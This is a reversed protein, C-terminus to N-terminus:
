LKRFELWLKRNFQRRAQDSRALKSPLTPIPSGLEAAVKTDLTKTINEIRVDSDQWFEPSWQRFYELAREKKSSRKGPFLQGIRQWFTKQAASDDLKFHNRILETILAHRWLLQYFPDLNVGIGILYNIITSNSLYRLSLTIPKIRITRPELQELKLLLASKGSGTRGIVVSRQNNTDRLLGLYGFDQFADNLFQLDTEASISGVSANRKWKFKQVGKKPNTM